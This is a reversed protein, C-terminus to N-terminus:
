GTFRLNKEKLKKLGGIYVEDLIRRYSRWEDASKCDLRISAATYGIVQFYFLAEAERIDICLAESLSYTYEDKLYSVIKEFVIPQSTTDKFLRKLRTDKQILMCISNDDNLNYYDDKDSNIIEKIDFAFPVERLVDDLLEEIVELTNSYNYYFTSRSIQAKKCLRAVSIDIFACNEMENLLTDKIVNKTYKSRRDSNRQSKDQM